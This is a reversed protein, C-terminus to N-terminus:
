RRWRRYRRRFRRRRGHNLSRLRLRTFSRMPPRRPGIPRKYMKYNARSTPAPTPAFTLPASTMSEESLRARKGGIKPWNNEIASAIDNRSLAYPNSMYEQLYNTIQGYANQVYDNVYSGAALAGSGGLIQLLAPTNGRFFARLGHILARRRVENTHSM